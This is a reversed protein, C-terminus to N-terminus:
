LSGPEVAWDIFIREDGVAGVGPLIQSIELLRRNVGSGSAERRGTCGPVCPSFDHHSLPVSGECTPTGECPAGPLFRVQSVRNVFSIRVAAQAPIHSSRTTAGRGGLRRFRALAAPTHFGGTPERASRSHGSGAPPSELVSTAAM